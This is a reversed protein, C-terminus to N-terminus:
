KEADNRTIQYYKLIELIQKDTCLIDEKKFKNLAIIEKAKELKTSSLANFKEWWENALFKMIRDTM